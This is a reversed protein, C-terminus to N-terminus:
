RVSGIGSDKPGVYKPDVAIQGPGVRAVTRDRSPDYTNVPGYGGNFQREFPGYSMGRHDPTAAGGAIVRGQPSQAPNAQLISRRRAATEEFREGPRPAWSPGFRNQLAEQGTPTYAIQKQRGDAMTATETFGAGTRQLNFPNPFAPRNGGPQVVAPSSTAVPAAAAAQRALSGTYQSASKWPAVGKTGPSYPFVSQASLLGPSTGTMPKTGGSGAGYTAAISEASFPNPLPKVSTAPTSVAGGVVPTSTALSGTTRGANTVHYNTRAEEQQVYSRSPDRAPYTTAGNRAMFDEKAKEGALMAPSLRLGKEGEIKEGTPGRTTTGIKAPGTPQLTTPQHDGMRRREEEERRQNQDYKAM